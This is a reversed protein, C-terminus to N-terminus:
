PLKLKKLINKRSNRISFYKIVLKFKELYTDSAFYGNSDFVIDDNPDGNSNGFVGTTFGYDAKSPTIDLGSM